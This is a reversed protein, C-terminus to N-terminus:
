SLWCARVVVGTKASSNSRRCMSKEHAGTPAKQKKSGKYVTSDSAEVVNKEVEKLGNHVDGGGQQVPQVGGAVVDHTVLPDEKEVARGTNVTELLTQVTTPSKYNSGLCM